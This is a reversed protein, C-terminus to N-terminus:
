KNMPQNYCWSGNRENTISVVIVLAVLCNEDTTHTTKTLIKASHYRILTLLCIEISMKGDLGDTSNRLANKYRLKFEEKNLACIESIFDNMKHWAEIPLEREFKFIAQEGKTISISLNKTEHL